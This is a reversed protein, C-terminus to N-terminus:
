NKSFMAGLRPHFLGPTQGVLHTLVLAFSCFHAVWFLRWTIGSFELVLGVAGKPHKLKKQESSAFITKLPMRGKGMLLTAGWFTLTDHLSTLIMLGNTGIYGAKFRAGRNSRSVLTQAMLVGFFCLSVGVGSM